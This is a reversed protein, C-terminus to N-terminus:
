GYIGLLNHQQHAAYVTVADAVFDPALFNSSVQLSITITDCGSHWNAEDEEEIEQQSRQHL